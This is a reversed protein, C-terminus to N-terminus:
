ESYYRDETWRAPNADIYEWIERWDRENRVVHDHFSKQWLSKGAEKSARRKMQGIATSLTPAAILRGNKDTNIRLLLHIHNPMIVYKEISVAPYIEEMNRIASRVIEGEVSLPFPCATENQPRSIAAGVANNSSGGINWFLNRRDHTCITVFYAGPASYDYERLRAQKRHPLKM